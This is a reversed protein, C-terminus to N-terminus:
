QIKTINSKYTEMEVVLIASACVVVVVVDVDFGSKLRIDATM